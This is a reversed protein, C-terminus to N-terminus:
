RVWLYYKQNYSTSSGGQSNGGPNNTIGTVESYGRHSITVNTYGGGNCGYWCNIGAGAGGWSGCQVYSPSTSTTWSPTYRMCESVNFSNNNSNHQYTCQAPHFYRFQFNENNTRYGIRADTFSRIANIVNDAYKASPGTLQALTATNGFSGTVEDQYAGDRNDRAVLTWGGGDNNMDCYCSFPAIPGSQDPDITYTGNQAGPNNTLIELCNRPTQSVTVTATDSYTCGASDVVLVVQFNGTGSWTVTASSSSSSNPTGSAFSWSYFTGQVLSNFAVPAGANIPTPVTFLTAPAQPCDCSVQRWGAQPMFTELCGTTTNFITLATAPNQIANRQVTTLRPPLFGKDSFQVDLGASPDPPNGNANIGVGQAFLSGACINLTIFLFCFKM